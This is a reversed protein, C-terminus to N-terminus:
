YLDLTMLPILTEILIVHCLQSFTMPECLSSVMQLMNVIGQRGEDKIVTLLHLKPFLVLASLIHSRIDIDVAIPKIICTANAPPPFQCPKSPIVYYM